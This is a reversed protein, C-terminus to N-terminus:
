GGSPWAQLNQSDGALLPAALASSVGPVLEVPVHADRLARLESSCRSFVSPCGGKLRVVRKGKWACAFVLKLATALVRRTRSLVSNMDPLLREWDQLLLSVQLCYRVLLQDIESQKISQQGGRKGVYLKAADNSSYKRVADQM